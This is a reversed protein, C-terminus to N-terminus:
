VRVIVLVSNSSFILAKDTLSSGIKSAMESGRLESISSYSILSSFFFVGIIAAVLFVEIM